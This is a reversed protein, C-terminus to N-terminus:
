KATAIEEDTVEIEITKGYKEEFAAQDNKRKAVEILHKKAANKFKTLAIEATQGIGRFYSYPGDYDDAEHLSEDLAFKAEIIHVVDGEEDNIHTRYEPTLTIKM